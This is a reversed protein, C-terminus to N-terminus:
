SGRGAWILEWDCVSVPFLNGVSKRRRVDKGGRGKRMASPIVRIDLRVTGCVDVATTAAINKAIRECAGRFYLMNDGTYDRMDATVSFSVQVTGAPLEFPSTDYQIDPSCSVLFLLFILVATAARLRRM